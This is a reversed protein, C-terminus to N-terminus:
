EEPGLLERELKEMMVLDIAERLTPALNWNEFGPCNKLSSSLVPNVGTMVFSASHNRYDTRIQGFFDVLAEDVSQVNKWDVIASEPPAQLANQFVAQLEEAMNAHIETPIVEFVKFNEKTNIKVLM